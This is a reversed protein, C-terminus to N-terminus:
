LRTIACVYVLECAGAGSDERTTSSRWRWGDEAEAAVLWGELRIQDDAAIDQLAEAVVDTAPIMHMNASSRVLEAAPLPPENQWRCRYFRANQSIQLRSLVADEGMRGWGLALDTPSLEAERGSRYDERALVRGQLSFGALPTLRAARLAFPQM